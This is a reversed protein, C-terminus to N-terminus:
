KENPRETAIPNTSRQVPTKSLNLLAAANKEGTVCEMTIAGDANKRLVSYSMQAPGLTASLSGDPNRVVQVPTESGSLSLSQQLALREADTPERLEGTVPDKFVRMGSQSVAEVQKQAPKPDVAAKKEQATLVGLGFALVLITKKMAISRKKKM